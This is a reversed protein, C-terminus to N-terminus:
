FTLAKICYQILIESTFNRDMNRMVFIRSAHKFIFEASQEKNLPARINHVVNECEKFTCLNINYQITDSNYATKFPARATKFPARHKHGSSHHGFNTGNSRHGLITGLQATGSFQVRLHHGILRHGFITGILRHGIIKGSSQAWLYHTSIAGLQDTGFSPAWNIPVRFHHGFSHHGFITGM